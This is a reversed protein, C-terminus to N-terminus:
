KVNDVHNENLVNFTNIFAYSEEEILCDKRKLESYCSVLRCLSMNNTSSIQLFLCGFSISLDVALSNSQKSFWQDRMILHGSHDKILNVLCLADSLTQCVEEPNILFGDVLKENLMKKVTKEDFAQSSFIFCSSSLASQLLIYSSDDNVHFPDIFGIIPYLEVWSKYMQLLDEKTKSTGASIEYKNLKMDYFEHAALHLIIDFSPQADPSFSKIATMIFDFLREPKDFAPTFEGSLFSKLCGSVGFKQLLLQEIYKYFNLLMHAAQDVKIYKKPLIWIEKFLNLKGPTSCSCSLINLAPVPVSYKEQMTYLYYSQNKLCNSAYSSMISLFFSGQKIEVEYMNSLEFHASHNESINLCENANVEISDVCANPEKYLTESSYREIAIRLREDIDSQDNICAGILAPTLVMKVVFWLRDYSFGPLQKEETVSKMGLNTTVNEVFIDKKKAKTDKREVSKYTVPAMVPRNDFILQLNAIEKVVGHICCSVVAEMSKYGAPSLASQYTIESITPSCSKSGFYDSMYGYLDKPQQLFLINLLNEIEQPVKNEEYYKVALRKLELKNMKKLIFIPKSSYYHYCDNDDMMIM